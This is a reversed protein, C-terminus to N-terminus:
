MRAPGDALQPGKVARCPEPTHKALRWLLKDAPRLVKDHAPPVVPASPSSLLAPSLTDLHTADRARDVLAPCRAAAAAAHCPPPEAEETPTNRSEEAKRPEQKATQAKPELELKSKM